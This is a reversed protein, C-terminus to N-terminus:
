GTKENLGDRVKDLLQILNKVQRDSLNPLATRDLESVTPDLYKLLDLGARTISCMRQRRDREGPCSQVWGREELKQILRTIGPTPEVLREGVEMIPLPEGNGRLIRLVNYQQATIGAPEMASDFHHRLMHATRMLSLVAEQSLSQFPKRQRIVDKFSPSM